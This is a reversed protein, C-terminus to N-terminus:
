DCSLCLAAKRKCQGIDLSEKVVVSKNRGPCSTAAEGPCGGVLDRTRQSLSRSYRVPVANPLVEEEFLKVRVVDIAKLVGFEVEVPDLGDCSARVSSAVGRESPMCVYLM